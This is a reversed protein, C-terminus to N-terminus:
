TRLKRPFIYHLTVFLNLVTTKYWTWSEKISLLLDLKDTKSLKNALKQVFLQIHICKCGVVPIQPPWTWFYITSFAYSGSTESTQNSLYQSGGNLRNSLQGNQHGQCLAKTFHLCNWNYKVNKLLVHYTTVFIVVGFNLVTKLTAM